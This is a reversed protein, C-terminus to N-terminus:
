GAKRLSNKFSEIWTAYQLVDHKTSPFGFRPLAYLDCKRTIDVSPPLASVAGTFGLQESFNMERKSFDVSRGIPYCFINSPSKLETKVDLWSKKMENLSCEDTERSLLPHSYSHPAIKLGMRELERLRNWTTAAYKEPAKEPIEVELLQAMSALAAEIEQLSLEALRFTIKHATESKNELNLGLEPFRQPLLKLRASSANLVLHDIKSDWLWLEDSIFGTVVFYTCPCDFHCFLQAPIEAHDWYGDDISFAVSRPPLSRGERVAIAIDEVSVFNFKRKRLITLTYALLSLDHGELDYEHCKFRHLMFIPVFQSFYRDGVKLLPQSSLLNILLTKLMLFLLLAM